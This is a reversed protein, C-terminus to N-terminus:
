PQGEHAHTELTELRKEKLLAKAAWQRANSDSTNMERAIQNWTWGARRLALAQAQKPTPEKM